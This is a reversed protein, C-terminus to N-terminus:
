AAHAPEAALWADIVNVSERTVEATDVNIGYSSLVDRLVPNLRGDRFATWDQEREWVDVYRLGGETEIALHVVLGQPTEPGLGARVKAYLDANAPVDEIFSYM